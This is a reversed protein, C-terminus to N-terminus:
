DLAARRRRLYLGAILLLGALLALGYPTLAPMRPASGVKTDAKLEYGIDGFAGLYPITQDMAMTVSRPPGPDFTYHTALFGAATLPQAVAYGSITLRGYFLTDDRSNNEWIFLLVNASGNLTTSLQGDLQVQVGGSLETLNLTMTGSQSTFTQQSKGGADAWGATAEDYAYATAQTGNALADADAYSSGDAATCTAESTATQPCSAYVGGDEHYSYADGVGCRARTYAYCQGNDKKAVAEAGAEAVLGAVLFM